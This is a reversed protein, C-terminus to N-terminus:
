RDAFLGQPSLFPVRYTSFDRTDTTVVLAWADRKAAAVLCADALDMGPSFARLDAFVADKYPNLMPVVHMRDLWSRLGDIALRSNGLIHLAEVVVAECTVFRGILKPLTKRAWEHHDDGANIFAALPGADVLLARAFASASRLAPM